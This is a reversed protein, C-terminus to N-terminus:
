HRVQKDSALVNLVFTSRVARGDQTAPKFLSEVMAEAIGKGYAPSQNNCLMVSDSVVHGLTDIVLRVSVM